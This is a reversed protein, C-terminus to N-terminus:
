PVGTLRCGNPPFEFRASRLPSSVGHRSNFSALSRAAYRRVRFLFLPLSSRQVKQVAAPKVSEDPEPQVPPDPQAPEDLSSAETSASVIKGSEKSEKRAKSEKRDRGYDFLVRIKKTVLRAGTIPYALLPAIVVRVFSTVLAIDVDPDIHKISFTRHRERGDPFHGVCVQIALRCTISDFDTVAKMEKM